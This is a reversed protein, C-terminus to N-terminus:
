PNLGEATGQPADASRRAQLWRLARGQVRSRLLRWTSPHTVIVSMASAWRGEELHLQADLYHIMIGYQVARAQLMTVVEDRGLGRMVGIFHANTALAGRYDYRRQGAGTTTWRRRATSFPLTWRYLPEGVLCAQGGAALFSLLFYFDEALRAQEHYAIDQEILFRRLVIPKLLGLDFDALSSTTRLLEELSLIRSGSFAPFGTRRPCMDDPDIYHMNDAVFQAGQADAAAILVALRTPDIADDADLVALWRGRAESTALNMARAKGGNASLRIVRIRADDRALLDAVDASGDTSADDIVLIEIDRMTQAMASRLCRGLTAASNLVPIAITVVPSMPWGRNGGADARPADM